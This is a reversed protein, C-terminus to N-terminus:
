TKIAGQKLMPKETILKTKPSRLVWLTLLGVGFLLLADYGFIRQIPMQDYLYGTGFNGVIAGLGAYISYFASQGTARLEEGALENIYEVSAVMFFSYSVGHLLEIAAGAVPNQISAYLALRVAFMFFSFAMLRGAGYKQIIKNSYFYFPLEIMAQIGLSWGILEPSAGLNSLYLSQFTWIPYTGVSMLFVIILFTLLQRNSILAKVRESLFETEVDATENSNTNSRIKLHQIFFFGFLMLVAAIPFILNMERGTIFKGVLPASVAWGIAGWLRVKGYSSRPDAKAIDLAVSDMISQTPNFFFALVVTWCFIFWFNIGILFGLLVFAYCFVAIRLLKVRGFQDAWIGWLPQVLLMMVPVVSAIVGIQLGSLGNKELYVNFLPWWAATGAYVLLLPLKKAVAGRYQILIL